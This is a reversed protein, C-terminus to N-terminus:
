FGMASSGCSASASSAPCGTKGIDIEGGKPKPPITVHFTGKSGDHLQINSNAPANYGLKSLEGKPDKLLKNKYEEDAWSKAIAKAMAKNFLEQNHETM